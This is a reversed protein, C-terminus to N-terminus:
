IEGRLGLLVSRQKWRSRVLLRLTIDWEGSSENGEIGGLIIPTKKYTRRILNGYVIVARDPRHGMEGGPSYADKQRHKKSM